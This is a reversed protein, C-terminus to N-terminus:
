RFTGSLVTLLISSEKSNILTKDFHYTTDILSYNCGSLASATITGALTYSLLKSIAKKNINLNKIKM